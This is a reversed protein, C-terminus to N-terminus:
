LQIHFALILFKQLHLTLSAFKSAFDTQLEIGKRYHFVKKLLNISLSELLLSYYDGIVSLVFFIGIIIIQSCQQYLISLHSLKCILGFSARRFSLSQFHLVFNFSFYLLVILPHSSLSSFKSFLSNM